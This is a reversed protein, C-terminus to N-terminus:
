FYVYVELAAMVTRGFGAVSVKCDSERGRQTFAIL